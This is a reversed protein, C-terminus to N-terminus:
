HAAKKAIYSGAAQVISVLIVIILIVTWTIQPMNKSHGYMIAFNGLGHHDGGPNHRPCGGEFVGALHDGLPLLGYSPGGRHPRSPGRGPRGGGATGPLPHHRLGPPHYRGPCRHRHGGGFPEPEAAGYGAPHLPHLPLLRLHPEPHFEGAQKASISVMQLTEWFARWLQDSRAAVDPIILNLLDAM